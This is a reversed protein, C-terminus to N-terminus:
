ARPVRCNWETMRQAVAPPPTKLTEPPRPQFKGTLAYEILAVYERVLSNLQQLRNQTNFNLSTSHPMVTFGMSQFVLFSRWLHPSDTILLINRVGAPYLVAASFVANEETTQSCEEGALATIPVKSEQFEKIMADADMMGSTFIRPARQAQWLDLAAAVRERRFPEGRGLVVITDARNGPDPPLRATLGWTLLSIFASSTLVLTAVIVVAM